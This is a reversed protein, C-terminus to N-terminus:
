LTDTIQKAEEPCPFIQKEASRRPKTGGLALYAFPPPRDSYVLVAHGAMEM